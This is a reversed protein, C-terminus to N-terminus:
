SLGRRGFVPAAPRRNYAVPRPTEAAAPAPTAYGMSPEPASYMRPEPTSYNYVASESFDEYGRGGYGGPPGYGNTDLSGSLFGCEVIVWIAGIYPVFLLLSWFGSKDRDHFRKVTAAFNIWIAPIATAVILLLVQAAYPDLRERGLVSERNPDDSMVVAFIVAVGGAIVVLIALQALWWQGRGIRGSFGFLLNVVVVGQALFPSV